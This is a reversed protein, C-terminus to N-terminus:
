FLLQTAVAVTAVVTAMLLVLAVAKLLRFRRQREVSIVIVTVNDPAGRAHALRILKRISHEASHRRVIRALEDEKTLSWLGDTCLVYRDGARIQVIGIAPQLPFPQGVFATIQTSARESGPEGNEPSAQLAAVSQDHTIQEIARRRIRYIRSDGVSFLVGANNPLIVLGALTTGIRDLGARVAQQRVHTNAADIAERLAEVPELANPKDGNSLGYYTRIVANLASTSALEGGRMGGMGDAVMFLAGRAHQPADSPPVLM